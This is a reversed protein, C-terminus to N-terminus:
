ASNTCQITKCMASMSNHVKSKKYLAQEIYRCAYLTLQSVASLLVYCDVQSDLSTSIFTNKTETTNNTPKEATFPLAIHM